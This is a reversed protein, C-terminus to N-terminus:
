RRKRAQECIGCECYPCISGKEIRKQLALVKWILQQWDYWTLSAESEIEDTIKVPAGDANLKM